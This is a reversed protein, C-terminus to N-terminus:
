FNKQPLPPGKPISARPGVAVKNRWQALTIEVVSLLFALVGSGSGSYGSSIDHLDSATDLLPSPQLTVIATLSNKESTKRCGRKHMFFLACLLLIFIFLSSTLAVILLHPVSSLETEVTDVILIRVVCVCVSPNCRRISHIVEGIPYQNSFFCVCAAPATRLSPLFTM